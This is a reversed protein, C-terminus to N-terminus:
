TNGFLKIYAVSQFRIATNVAAATAKMRSSTGKEAVVVAVVDMMTEAVDAEVATEVATTAAAILLQWVPSTM